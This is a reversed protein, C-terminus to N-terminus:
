RSLVGDGEWSEAQEEFQSVDIREAMEWIMRAAHDDDILRDLDVEAFCLQRRDVSIYKIKPKQQVADAPLRVGM